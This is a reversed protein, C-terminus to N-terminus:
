QTVKGKLSFFSSSLVYVEDRDSGDGFRAVFEKQFERIFSKAEAMRTRSFALVMANLEREEVSQLHIASAAKELIQGHFKRLAQSPVDSETDNFEDVARLSGNLEHLLGLRTLRAIAERAANESIGLYRAIWAPHSEFNSLYTLELLAYHYWDAISHFRDLSLRSEPSLSKRGKIRAQALERKVQSRAHRSEVLDCVLERENPSYGLRTAIGLSTPRSFGYRGKFVESLHSTSLGLDRAFARLSYSANRAVRTELEARLVERFDTSQNLIRVM